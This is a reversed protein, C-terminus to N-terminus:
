QVTDCDGQAAFASLVAPYPRGIILHAILSSMGTHKVRVSCKFLGSSKLGRGLSTPEYFVASYSITM